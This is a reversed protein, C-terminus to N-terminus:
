MVMEPSLFHVHSRGTLYRSCTTGCTYPLPSLPAPRSFPTFPMCSYTCPMHQQSWSEFDQVLSVSLAVDASLPSLEPSPVLPNPLPQYAACVHDRKWVSKIFEPFHQAPRTLLESFTVRLGLRFDLSETKMITWQPLFGPSLCSIPPQSLM